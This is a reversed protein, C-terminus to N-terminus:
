ISQCTILITTTFNLFSIPRPRLQQGLIVQPDCVILANKWISGDLSQPWWACRSRGLVSWYPVLRNAYGSFVIQSSSETCNVEENLCSTKYCPYIINLIFILQDLITLVLLDFTNFRGRRSSKGSIWGPSVQYDLCIFSFVYLNCM